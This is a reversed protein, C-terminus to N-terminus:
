KVLKKFEDAVFQVETGVIVQVSKGGPKVVGAAGTSKVLAEDVISPDELELRLRTTCYDTSLVNEKGGIAQLIIEAQNVFKDSSTSEYTVDIHDERGPTKLNFKVIMFRFIVYYVVFYIVGLVLLMFPKNALPLRSSLIFDVFGASFTFGAMWQFSAAIFLSIGTLVAHVFYLAPAAFMFSFELPETIGTFFAAFGAALMLSGVTEKNEPKATHYMALGGGVLGFMMVPFFGAQYMGTVGKIGPAADVATGWFRGIDNIGITDFWFVSNLAHHLGTPILLRNFFGFLGAGLPGLKSIGTGFAVLGEFIVPWVFLLVASVGLMAVSTMIPACRKGSFFSLAAPLKTKSFKNYMVAAVVGSLIGIFANNIKAFAPSVQEVPTKTIMAVSAPALITTVLLFAVLGSLSAAGDKDDSLGYAIGVAFIIALNDIIASGSKILIAAIPSNAGWGMPDIWYGIGMLIGAAPLVAVPLMLSRGLKQLRKMM